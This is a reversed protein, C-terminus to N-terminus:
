GSYMEDIAEHGTCFHEMSENYDCRGIQGGHYMHRDPGCISRRQVQIVLNGEDSITPDDFTKYQIDRPGRIVLAKM